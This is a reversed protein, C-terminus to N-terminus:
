RENEELLDALRTLGRSVRVRVNGETTQLMTAVEEYTRDELIRLTVAQAWSPPLETLKARISPAIAALDALEEVREHETESLQPAHIKARRLRRRNASAHYRRVRNKAIGFLWAQADGREADYKARHKFAELFTESCLDAATQACGTRLM